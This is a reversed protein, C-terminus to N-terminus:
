GPPYVWLQYPHYSFINSGWRKLITEDHQVHVKDESYGVVVGEEGDLASWNGPHEATAVTSKVIVKANLYRESYDKASLTQGQRMAEYKKKESLASARTGAFIIYPVPYKKDISLKLYKKDYCFWKRRLSFKATYEPFLDRLQRNAEEINNVTILKSPSNNEIASITDSEFVEFEREIPFPELLEWIGRNNFNPDALNKRLFAAAIAIRDRKIKKFHQYISSVPRWLLLTSLVVLLTTGFGSFLWDSNDFVWNLRNLIFIIINILM